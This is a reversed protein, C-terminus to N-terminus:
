RSRLLAVGEGSLDDLAQTRGNLAMFIAEGPGRVEPGSGAFWTMDTAVLRLGKARKAAGAVSLGGTPTVNYDLLIALRDAPIKRTAGVARRVDQQHVVLESLQTLINSRSSL